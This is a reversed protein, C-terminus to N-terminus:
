LSSCLFAASLRPIPPPSPHRCCLMGLVLQVPHHIGTIRGSLISTVPDSTWPWGQQHISALEMYLALEFVVFSFLLSLLGSPMDEPAGLSHKARSVRVKSKYSGSSNPIIKNKFALRKFSQVRLSWHKQVCVDQNQAQVTRLTEWLM